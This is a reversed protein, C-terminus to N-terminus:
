QGDNSLLTYILWICYPLNWSWKVIKTIKLIEDDLKSRSKNPLSKRLSILSTKLMYANLTLSICIIMYYFIFAM